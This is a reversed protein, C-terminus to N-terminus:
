RAWGPKGTKSYENLYQHQSQMERNAWTVVLQQHGIGCGTAMALTNGADKWKLWFNVDSDIREPGYSGDKDAKCEFWPKAVKQLKETRILTLGFHGTRIPMIPKDLLEVPAKRLLEGNEDTATALITSIERGPQMACIADLNFQHLLDYLMMVDGSTFVSDYDVTLIFPIKQAQANECIRTLGHHWYVGTSLTQPLGIEAAVQSLVRSTETFGLRPITMCLNVDDLVFPAKTARVNLSIPLSACDEGEGYWRRMCRLGVAKMCSELVPRTYGSRHFDYADTQGGYIYNWMKPDYQGTALMMGFQQMDPVAISLNGGPKLKRAWHQLVPLVEDLLMHELLHSVRIHACSEDPVDLMRADKGSKLDINEYGQLPCDGAGLNLRLGGNLDNTTPKPKVLVPTEGIPDPRAKPASMVDLLPAIRSPAEEITQVKRPRGRKRKTAQGNLTATENM